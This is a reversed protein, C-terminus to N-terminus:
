VYQAPPAGKHDLDLNMSVFSYACTRLQRLRSTADRCVVGALRGPPSMRNGERQASRLEREPRGKASM